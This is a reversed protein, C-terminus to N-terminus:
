SFRARIHDADINFTARFHDEEKDTLLTLKEPKIGAKQRSDNFSNHGRLFMDEGPLTLVPMFNGIKTHAFSMTTVPVGPKIVMALAVGWLSHFLGRALLGQACPQAIYGQNFDIAIHRNKRVLVRSIQTAERLREVFTIGVADDDDM